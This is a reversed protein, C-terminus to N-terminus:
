KEGFVEATFVLLEATKYADTDLGAKLGLQKLFTERNWGQETAVQPLFVGQNYGKKLIVGHKGAVVEDPSSIKRLPSMVSVEIDIDELESPQVKPFRPDETSANCANERVTEALPAVGQIYGICGRLQGNKHLTVFAGTKEKLRDTLVYNKLDPKGKGTVHSTLTDRAIKLLTQKEEKTLVTEEPEIQKEEKMIKKQDKNINEYFVASVYSVSHEYSKDMDGSKYYLLQEGVATKPLAAALVAFVKVGCCTIGTKNKYDFIGKVDKKLIIDALGLDLETLREAINSSFPTYNFAAGFHTFDGSAVIIDNPGINEAILKGLAKAQEYNVDGIVIPVLKFDKLVVQLFPIQIELSHEDIHANPVETVLPNKRLKKVLEKDIEALGLPTEYADASTISAGTFWARHSPALVFVRKIKRIDQLQKFSYAACKGSYAYGAHPVILACVSKNKPVKQKPAEDLYKSILKKLSSSEGPYWSGAIASKRIKLSSNMTKGGECSISFFILILILFKFSSFLFKFNTMQNKNKNTVFTMGGNIGLIQTAM